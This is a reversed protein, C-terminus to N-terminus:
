KKLGAQGTSRSILAKPDDALAETNGIAHHGVGNAILAIRDTSAERHNKTTIEIAETRLDNIHLIQLAREQVCSVTTSPRM